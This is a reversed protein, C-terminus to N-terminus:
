STSYLSHLSMKYNMENGSKMFHIRGSKKSEDFSFDGKPSKNKKRNYKTKDQVVRQKFVPDRVVKKLKNKVKHKRKSM